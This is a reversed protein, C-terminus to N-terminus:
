KGALRVIADMPKPMEVGASGRHGGANGGEEEDDDDDDDEDDDDDDDDNDHHRGDHCTSALSADVENDRNEPVVRPFSSVRDDVAVGSQRCSSSRSFLSQKGAHLEYVGQTDQEVVVVIDDPWNGLILAHRSKSIHSELIVLVSKILKDGTM